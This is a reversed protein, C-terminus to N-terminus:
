GVPPVPMSRSPPEATEIASGDRPPTAPAILMEELTGTAAVMSTGPPGAPVGPASATLAPGIRSCLTSASLGAFDAPFVSSTSDAGIFAAVTRIVVAVVAAAVAGGALITCILAPDDTTTGTAGGAPLLTVSNAMM